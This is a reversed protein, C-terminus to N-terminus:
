INRNKNDFDADYIGHKRNTSICDFIYEKWIRCLEPFLLQNSNTERHTIIDFINILFTICIIKDLNDTGDDNTAYKCVILQKGKDKEKEELYEILKKLEDSLEYFIESSAGSCFPTLSASKFWLRGSIPCRQRIETLEKKRDALCNELVEVSEKNKIAQNIQNMLDFIQSKKNQVEIQYNTIIDNEIDKSIYKAVYAAVARATKVSQIDTSNPNRWRQTEPKLMETEYRSRLREYYKQTNKLHIQRKKVESVPYKSIKNIKEVDLDTQEAVYSSNLCEDFMKDPNWGASYKKLQNQRFREVYDFIKNCGQVIGRNILRNWSRRLCLADIYKDFILHYHLNGNKQLEKKWCFYKINWTKKAYTIFPNLAFRTLEKDTHKQESPLTLTVFTCLHKKNASKKAFNNIDNMDYGTCPINVPKKYVESYHKKRALYLIINTCKKITKIASASMMCDHFNDSFNLEHTEISNQNVNEYRTYVTLYNANINVCEVSNNM